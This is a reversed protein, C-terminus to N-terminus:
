DEPPALSFVRRGHEDTPIGMALADGDKLIFRRTGVFVEVYSAGRPIEIEYDAESGRNDITLRDVDTTFTATGGLVRVVVNPGDALSVAVVGDTQETLFAITFREHAPVAIGSTTPRDIAPSKEAPPSDSGGDRDIWDAVQKVWAPLPSGPIAYAAGALAAAAVFVAARRGWVTFAGSKRTFSEADVRPAPHDLHCLLGFIESQEREAQALLRACFECAAVHRSLAEKSRADLEGHLFRQIQEDSLHM